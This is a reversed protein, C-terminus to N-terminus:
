RLGFVQILRLAADSFSLWPHVRGARTGQYGSFGGLWLQYARKSAPGITNAALYVTWVLTYVCVL